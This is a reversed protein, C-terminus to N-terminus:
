AGTKEEYDKVILKYIRLGFSKKENKQRYEKGTIVYYRAM